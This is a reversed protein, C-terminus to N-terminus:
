VKKTPFIVHWINAILNAPVRWTQGNGSKKGKGCRTALLISWDLQTINNCSKEYHRFADFSAELGFFFFYIQDVTTPFAM